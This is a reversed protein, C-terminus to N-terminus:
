QSLAAAADTTPTQARLLAEIQAPPLPHGFLYGQGLRCGTERLRTAQSRHEIGEAVTDVRLADGLAIVSRALEGARGSTHIHDVFSKDIKISDIPFRQLYSLSSFGTGFDDIALRVGLQKLQQLRTITEDVDTLLISETLELTLRSPTLRSQALIGQVTARFSKSMFQRGSVNVSITLEGAGFADWACLQGVAQQLVWGGIPIILGTDEAVPIFELPPVDGRSAHHWRLLAEFGAIRNTSLEILPQYHLEFEHRELARRLDSLLNVRHVVADRMETRFVEHGGKGHAKARYMAIDANRLLDAVSETSSGGIAIGTSASLSIENGDLVVPAALAQKLRAAARIATHEDCNELLLAFEDGGLRAVTDGLRASASFRNAVARLLEDGSSHGLTDNVFKFEDLDIFLVALQSGSRRTRALEHEVRDIFLSRNALETLPDHLAQYALQQELYKQESVDRTALVFRNSRPDDVADAAITETNRWSGDHGRLRLELRRGAGDKRSTDTFFAVARLRDDPHVLQFLSAGVLEADSYGLVEHVSPSTYLIEGDGCIVSIVDSVSQIVSRLRQESHRLELTRVQVRAELDRTLSRNERLALIQRVVVFVFVALLCWLGLGGLGRRDLARAAVLGIAAMVPVYSLLDIEGRRPRRPGPSPPKLAALALTLFGVFWGGDVLQGAGYAGMATLYAFASNSVAVATLGLLIWGLPLGEVSRSRQAVIVVACLIVVTGVLYALGIARTLMNGSREAFAPGLFTLWSVVLVGSAVILADVVARLRSTLGVPPDFFVLMAALALPMALLFAPDAPSPSPVGRGIVVGYWSWITEGVAWSLESLALLCWGERARGRERRAAVLSAGAAALAAALQGLSDVATTVQAGGLKLALWVCFLASIAGAAAVRGSFRPDARSASRADAERSEIRDGRAFVPVM